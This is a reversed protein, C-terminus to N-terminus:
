KGDESNLRRKLRVGAHFGVRKRDPVVFTKGRLTMTKKRYSKVVFVGFNRIEVRGRSQLEKSLEEFVIQLARRGVIVDSVVNQSSLEKAVAHRIGM